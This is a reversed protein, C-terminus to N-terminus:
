EFLVKQKLQSEKCIYLCDKYWLSVDKWIYTDLVSYGKQLKQILMWVLLDNKWEERAEVIWESQIISLDYLLAEFDEDKRSLAYAVINKERKKYIIQFDYRFM